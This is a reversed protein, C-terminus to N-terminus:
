SPEMLMHWHLMEPRPIPCSHTLRLVADPEEHPGRSTGGAGLALWHAGPITSLLLTWQQMLLLMGHDLLQCLHVGGGRVNM